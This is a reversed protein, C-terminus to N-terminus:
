EAGHHHKNKQDVFVQINGPLHDVMGDLLEPNSWMTPVIAERLLLHNELYHYREWIHNLTFNTYRKLKAEQSMSEVHPVPASHSAQLLQVWKFKKAVRKAAEKTLM